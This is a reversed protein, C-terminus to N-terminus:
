LREVTDKIYRIDKNAKELATRTAYLMQNLSHIENRAKENNKGITEYNVKALSHLIHVQRILKDHSWSNIDDPTKAIKIGDLVGEDKIKLSDLLKKPKLLNDIEQETLIPVVDPKSISEDEFPPYAENYQNFSMILYDRKHKEIDYIDSLLGKPDKMVQLSFYIIESLDYDTGVENIIDKWEECEALTPNNLDKVVAKKSTHRAVIHGFKGEDSSQKDKMMAIEIDLIKM